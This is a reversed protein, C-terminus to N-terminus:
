LKTYIIGDSGRSDLQSSEINRPESISVQSRALRNMQLCSAYNMRHRELEGASLAVSVDFM